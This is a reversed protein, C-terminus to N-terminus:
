RVKKRKKAIFLVSLCLLPGELGFPSTKSNNNSQSTPNSSSSSSAGPTSIPNAPITISFQNSFNGEGLSNIATIKYFYSKDQQISSDLYTTTTGVDSLVKYNSSNDISKYIRYDSIDYGGTIKPATWNLHVQNKTFLGTLGLPASPTSYPLKKIFITYDNLGAFIYGSTAIMYYFTGEVTPTYYYIQTMSTLNYLGIGGSASSIALIPSNPIMAIKSIAYTPTPSSFLKVLSCNNFMDFVFVNFDDAVVLYRNDNSFTSSVITYNSQLITRTAINPIDTINWLIMNKDNGGTFLFTANPSVSLTNISASHRTMSVLYHGYQSSNWIQLKNGITTGVVLPTQPIFKVRQMITTLFISRLLQGTQLNWVDLDDNANATVLVKNDSSITASNFGGIYVYPDTFTTTFENTPLNYIKLINSVSGQGGGEKVMVINQSDTTVTLPYYNAITDTVTFYDDWTDVNLKNNTIQNTQAKDSAINGQSQATCFSSFGILFIFCFFIIFYRSLKIGEIFFIM